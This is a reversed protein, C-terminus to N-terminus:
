GYDEREAPMDGEYDEYPDPLADEKEQSLNRIYQRYDKDLSERQV